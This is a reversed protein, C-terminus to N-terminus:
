KIILAVIAVVVSLLIVSVLGYALKKVPEFETKSIVSKLLNRLDDRLASVEAKLGALEKGNAIYQNQFDYFRNELAKMREDDLRRMINDDQRQLNGDM